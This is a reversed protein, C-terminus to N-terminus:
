IQLRNFEQYAEILRSRVQMLTKFATDAKRVADIVGAYDARADAAVQRIAADAERQLVNVEDISKKLVDKFSVEPPPAGGAPKPAVRGAAASPEASKLADLEVPGMADMMTNM